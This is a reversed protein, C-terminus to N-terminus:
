RTEVSTPRSRSKERQCGGGGAGSQNPVAAPLSLVSGTDVHGPLHDDVPRRPRGMRGRNPNEPDWSGTACGQREQTEVLARRMPRNWKDWEPGVFNHMVMTAYYWYYTNRAEGNDPLNELLNECGEVMM